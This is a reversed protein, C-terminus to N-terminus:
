KEKALIIWGGSLHPMDLLSNFLMIMLCTCRTRPVIFSWELIHLKTLCCHCLHRLNLACAIPMSFANIYVLATVLYKNMERDYAAKLMTKSFKATRGVLRVVVSWTYGLWLLVEVDPMTQSWGGPCSIFSHNKM